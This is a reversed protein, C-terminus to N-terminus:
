AAPAASPARPRPRGQADPDRLRPAGRYEARRAGAALRAPTVAPLRVGVARLALAALLAVAVFALAGGSAQPPLLLLLGALTGLTVVARPFM